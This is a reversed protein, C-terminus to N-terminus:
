GQSGRATRQAFSGRSGRGLLIVSVGTVVLNIGFLVGIAWVADSPFGLWLLGGLLFSISGSVLLWGAGPQGRSRIGWAIEAIGDALFFGVALLTLTLLGFVPNLIFVIGAGGYLVALIVQGLKHKFGGASFAHFGHVTAGAVLVVGLLVSLSRGTVFPFVMALAGLVALIAGAVAATRSGM